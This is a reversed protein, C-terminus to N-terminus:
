SMIVVGKGLMKKLAAENEKQKKEADRWLNVAEDVSVMEVYGKYGDDEVVFEYGDRTGDGNQLNYYQLGGGAGVLLSDHQDFGVIHEEGSYKDRVRIIPVMIM